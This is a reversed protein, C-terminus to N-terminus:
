RVSLLSQHPAGVGMLHPGRVGATDELSAFWFYRLPPTMLPVYEAVAATIDHESGGKSDLAISEVKWGDGLALLSHTCLGSRSAAGADSSTNSSGRPTPLDTDAQAHTNFPLTAVTIHTGGAEGTPIILVSKGHWSRVVFADKPDLDFGNVLIVDLGDMEEAMGIVVALMAAKATGHTKVQAPTTPVAAISLVVIAPKQDLRALKGLAVYVARKYQVLKRAYFPNRVALHTPDALALFAMTATKNTHGAYAYPLNLVTFTEIAPLFLTGADTDTGTDTDDNGEKTDGSSRDIALNTVTATVGALDLIRALYRSEAPGDSTSM